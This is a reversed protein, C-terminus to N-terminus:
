EKINTKQNCITTPESADQVTPGASVSTNEVIVPKTNQTNAPPLQPIEVTQAIQQTAPVQSPTKLQPISVQATQPKVLQPVLTSPVAVVPSPPGAGPSPLKDMSSVPATLEGPKITLAGVPLLPPEQDIHKKRKIILGAIIIAILIIIIILLIMWIEISDSSRKPPYSEEEPPTTKLMIKTSIPEAINGARDKVRFYVTKEGDNPPLTFLRESVFSEWDSWSEGDISFSIENIGSTNDFASLDLNVLTANTESDGNNISISLSYPPTTDLIISDFVPEAINGVSDRVKFFIRKEGDNTVDPFSTYKIYVFPEWSYWNYGDFSLSIDSVGSLKDTAKLNLKVHNSNIYKLNENIIISLEDPPATDLIITDFVPEGINGAYDKVKFYITKDGDIASLKYPRTTNFPEWDSWLINDTSFSMQSIGSGIDEAQLSLIINSSIAYPDNNNIYIGLKEPPQDDYMFTSGLSPSEVNSTKDIARSRIIYHDGTIWPITSTNYSWTSTGVAPLWFETSFWKTGDWYNNEKPGSDWELYDKACIISIQIKDIGSGGIDISNGSITQLKNLWVNNMPIEVNSTPTDMDITFSNKIDSQEINTANDIARSQIIYESGSQWPITSTDYTWNTTGSALLWTNLQVWSAGDWFKNDIRRKIVIEITNIGSGPMPDTATGSIENLSNYVGDNFPIIPLSSPAQTDIKLIRPLSFETWANDPDKARVKWFWTGDPLETYSTGSPFEWFQEPTNQEGSDFDTDKFQINDDILVQFAAQYESDFDEFTWVFNPRNTTILTGNIPSIVIIDPFCNYSISINKLSPSDTIISINLFVRYQVWRDGNHGSWIDTPSSSYFTASDGDPGVFSKTYLVSENIATRLQIKISTNLPTDASWSLTNFSSNFGTTFPKSIYTGNKITLFRNYVWTDNSEASSFHGSFLIVQDTGWVYSISHMNRAKPKNSLTQETWTNKKFNYLWTDDFINITGYSGGFLLIEDTLSISAMAHYMRPSPQNKPTLRTWDDISFDYIWTDNYITSPSYPHYGGFLLIEDDNPISAMAHSYRTSPAKSPSQETWTNESVDYVWTENYVPDFTNHGGFLVVKDTGYIQAMAHYGRAKPKTTQNKMIWQNDSLDYIWTDGFCSSPIAGGFLIVKDEGYISAMAHYSRSSPKTSLTIKTWSNNSLDYLWTEDGGNSGGFMLVKDTGWISAMAHGERNIPSVAPKNQTWHYREIFEIKLEGEDGSGEIITNNFTGNLFDNNSSQTWTSAAKVNSEIVNEFIFFGNFGVTIIAGVLYVSALATRVRSGTM